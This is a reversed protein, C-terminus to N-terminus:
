EEVKIRTVQMPAWIHPIEGRAIQGPVRAFQEKMERECELCYVNGGKLSVWLRGHHVCSHELKTPM